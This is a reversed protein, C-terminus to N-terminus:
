HYMTVTENFGLCGKASSTTMPMSMTTTTEFDTSLSNTMNVPHSEQVLECHDPKIM